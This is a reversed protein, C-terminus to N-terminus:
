SVKINAEILGLGETFKSVTMTRNHPKCELEEAEPTTQKRIEVLHNLMLNLNHYNLLEFIDEVDYM